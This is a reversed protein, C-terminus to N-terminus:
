LGSETVARDLWQNYTEYPYKTRVSDVSAAYIVTFTNDGRKKLFKYADSMEFNRRELPTSILVIVPASKEHCGWEYSRAQWGPYSKIAHRAVEETTRTFLIIKM